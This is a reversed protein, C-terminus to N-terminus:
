GRGNRLLEGGSGNTVRSQKRDNSMLHLRRTVSDATVATAIPRPGTAEGPSRSLMIEPSSFGM